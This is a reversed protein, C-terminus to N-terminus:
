SFLVVALHAHIDRRLQNSRWDLLRSTTPDLGVAHPCSTKMKYNESEERAEYSLDAFVFSILRSM